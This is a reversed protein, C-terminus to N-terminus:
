QEEEALHDALASPSLFHIRFQMLACPPSRSFREDLWLFNVQSLGTGMVAYFVLSM